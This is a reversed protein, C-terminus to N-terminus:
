HLASMDDNYLLKVIKTFILKFRLMDFFLILGSVCKVVFFLFGEKKKLM